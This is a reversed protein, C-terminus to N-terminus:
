HGQRKLKEAKVLHWVGSSEAPSWGSYEKIPIDEIAIKEKLIADYLEVKKAVTKAVLRDDYLPVPLRRVRMGGDVYYLTAENVPLGLAHRIMHSYTNVQAINDKVFTDNYLEEDSQKNKKTIAFEKQTKWDEIANRPIYYADPTGWLSTGNVDLEIAREIIWDPHGALGRLIGEHAFTGRMMFRNDLVKGVYPTHLKFHLELPCQTLMTVSLVPKESGYRVASLADYLAQALALPVPPAPCVTTYHDLSVCDVEKGSGDLHRFSPACDCEKVYGIQSM